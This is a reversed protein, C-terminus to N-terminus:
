GAAPGVPASTRRRLERWAGVGLVLNAVALVSITTREYTGIAGFLFPGAVFLAVLVIGIVLSARAVGTWSTRTRLRWTIFPMVPATAFFALGFAAHAWGQWSTIMQCGPDCSFTGSGAVFLAQALAFRFPSGDGIAARLGLAFLAFLAAMGGFGITNFAVANTSDQQGLESIAHTIDYGSRHAGFIASTVLIWVPALAGAFTLLPEVRRGTM